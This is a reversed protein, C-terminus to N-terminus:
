KVESFEKYAKIVHEQKSNPALTSVLNAKVYKRLEKLDVSELELDSMGKYPDIVDDVFDPEVWDIHKSGRVPDNSMVQTPELYDIKHTGKAENKLEVWYKEVYEPYVNMWISVEDISKGSMLLDIMTQHQKENLGNKM